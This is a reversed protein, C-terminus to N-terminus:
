KRIYVRVVKGSLKVKKPIWGLQGMCHILKKGSIGAGFLAHIDSVLEGDVKVTGLFIKVDNLVINEYTKILKLLEKKIRYYNLGECNFEKGFINEPKKTLYNLDNIGSFRKIYEDINIKTLTYNKDIIYYSRQYRCIKCEFNLYIRKACSRFGYIDDSLSEIHRKPYLYQERFQELGSGYGHKVVYDTIDKIIIGDGFSIFSIDVFKKAAEMGAHDSDFNLIIQANFSDFLKKTCYSLGGLALAITLDDGLDKLMRNIMIADDEGETVIVTMCSDYAAWALRDPFLGKGASAKIDRKNKANIKFTKQVIGNAYPYHCVGNAFICGADMYDSVRLGYSEAYSEKTEDDTRKKATTKFYQVPDIDYRGYLRDWIDVGAKGCALCRTMLKGDDTLTVTLSPTTDGTNHLEPHVCKCVFSRKGSYYKENQGSSALLKEYLNQKTSEMKQTEM